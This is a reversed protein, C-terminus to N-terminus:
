RQYQSLALIPATLAAFVFEDDKAFLQLVPISTARETEQNRPVSERRSDRFFHQTSAAFLYQDDRDSVISL